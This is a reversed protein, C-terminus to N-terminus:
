KNSFYIWDIDFLNQKQTGTGKFIFYLDQVPKATIPATVDKWSASTGGAPIDISSILEGDASGAHVEIKGGNHAMVRYRLQKVDTLDIQKFIVFTGDNAGVIYSQAPNTITGIRANGGDFSEAEVFPSRLLIFDNGTLSKIGNAGKDSYAATLLYSGRRSKGLHENLLLTDVMGFSKSQNSLSLIYQVLQAADTKSLAPHPTMARDGWVGSGGEIIKQALREVVGPKGAYREAVATFSPGVSTKDISHCANCDLSAMTHIASSYNISNADRTGDVVGAADENRPIYGFTVKTAGAGANGDERDSIEVRYDFRSNDWYFTKNSSTIIKVDPPENGAFVQRTVTTKGGKDDSVTLSVQHGGAKEFTFQQTDGDRTENDIKWQYSLQDGKDHDFSKEASLKVTLPVAGYVKDIDAIAVPNRNGEQYEIRVLKADTNKSFWNTGYELVYMAGDPGFKVDMPAAFSLHPLFPEMRVYNGASDLTVAMIWHRIWEYIFLKGNYYDSLKFPADNFHDSYYVPGAMLSAGGSGVLPFERSFDKGYWIMAPQAPPLEQLGTNNKSDNIPRSPDKGPGEKKTAYDYMPFIENDGIFYPWGYFGPNAARNLEDYSLLYGNKGRVKTDPGVEGWYLINTKQDITLRYPNRMGMIYIEPKTKPTGKPFLNGEPVTYTGNSEPKIRLIKGRLDNTNAATAQDDALERGPREDVPTYGEKFPDDANTNDGISVYLLSDPGFAMGGASHCCFTHQTPIELLVKESALSLSDDVLEFRSLRDLSDSGAPAYYLYIWHNQVYGPDAIVGLLGDEIGYYVNLNAITKTQQAQADYLKVAGKREVIVVNNNPLVAMQLPEDFGETLVIRAYRSSDPVNLTTAKEYDPMKNDGMAYTLAQQLTEENVDKPVRKIRGKDVAWETGDQQKDWQQLWHWGQQKLVSDAVTVIGGGGAELYRKVGPVSRYDLLNLSSFPLFLASMNALSDEHLYQEDATVIINWGNKAGINRLATAYNGTTDKSFYLVTSSSRTRGCAACIVALAIVLYGKM